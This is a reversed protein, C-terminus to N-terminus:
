IKGLIEKIANHAYVNDESAPTGHGPLLVKIEGLSKIIQLSKKMDEPSSRPYDLSGIGDIFLTDGSILIKNSEDWLSISGHTHGPTHLVKFNYNGAKIEDGKKITGHIKPPKYKTEFLEAMVGESTKVAESDKEHIYVKAKTLQQFKKAAGVHDFHSHTLIIKNIRSKAIGYNEMQKKTEEVFFGSGTDIMIDGIVFVNSDPGAGDLLFIDENIKM